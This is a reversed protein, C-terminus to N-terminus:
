IRWRCDQASPKQVRDKHLVQPMNPLEEGTAITVNSLLKNLEEVNCGIQLNDGFDLRRCNEICLMEACLYELVNCNVMVKVKTQEGRPSITM